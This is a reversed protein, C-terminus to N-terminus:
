MGRRRRQIDGYNVIVRRRPKTPPLEKDPQPPATTATPKNAPAAKKTPKPSVLPKHAPTAAMRKALLEWRVDLFKLAAYAYVACDLAENRERTKCWFHKAFGHQYRKERAESTLQLYYENELNDGSAWAVPTTWEGDAIKKYITSKCTDVGIQYLDVARPLVKRRIPRSAMKCIQRDYGPVGKCVILRRMGRSQAGLAWRYVDLTNRGGSDIAQAAPRIVRGDPRTYELGLLRRELERWTAASSMDGKVVFYDLAFPMEGIGWGYIYAEFRNHQVDIGATAVLCELPATIGADGYRVPAANKINLTPRYNYHAFAEGLVTNVFVQRKNEDHMSKEYEDVAQEWSYWGYPSYLASLHFGVSGAGTTSKATAQWKGGAIIEDKHSEDFEHACHGCRMRASSPDDRDWVMTACVIGDGGKNEDAAWRLTQMDGCRPCPVFYRRRDTANYMKAIRSSDELLPTSTAFFKSEFKYTNTRKGLLDMPDGEGPINIPYGDIEDAVVYRANMLRLSPASKATVITLVGGAFEKRDVSNKGDRKNEDSTIAALAPSSSIMPAIRGRSVEKYLKETPLALIINGPANSMWFGLANYGIDSGGIQAGKQFVIVRAPHDPHFCELIDRAYPTTAVRYRGPVAASAPLLRNEEAWEVVSQKTHPKIAALGAGIISAIAGHRAGALVQKINITM